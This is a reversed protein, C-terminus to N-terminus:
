HFCLSPKGVLYIESLLIYVFHWAWAITVAWPPLVSHQPICAIMVGGEMATYAVTIGLVSLVDLPRSPGLRDYIVGYTSYSQDFSAIGTEWVIWLVFAIVLRQAKPQYYMGM